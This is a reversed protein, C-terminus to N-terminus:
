QIDAGSLKKLKEVLTTRKLGLREAARSKNGGSSELAGLILEREFQKVRDKFDRGPTPLPASPAPEAPRAAPFDDIDVEARDRSRIVAIEVANELERINGPWPRSM